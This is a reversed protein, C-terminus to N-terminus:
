LWPSRSAIPYPRWGSAPSPLGMNSMLRRSNMVSSPPAAPATAARPAPVPLRDYHDDAWRYEITVKQGEIYGAETLGQRIFERTM